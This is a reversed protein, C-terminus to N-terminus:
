RAGWFILALAGLFGVEAGLLLGIVFPWSRRLGARAAAMSEMSFEGSETGEGIARELARAVSKASQPRHAAEKELCQVCVREIAAPIGAVHKRPPELPDHLAAVLISGISTGIYPPRGTLCEYLIAGLAYVDSGPTAKGGRVVEPALYCPTGVFAGTQTLRSGGTVLALGFDSIMPRQISGEALLINAPKLDRHIVGQEHAFDVARAIKAVLRAADEPDLAGLSLIRRELNASSEVREMAYWLVGGEAEGQDLVRVIGDHVIEATTTAEREFRALAMEDSEPHVVKLALDRDEGERRALYVVGQSGRGLVDRITYPGLTTGIELAPPRAMSAM